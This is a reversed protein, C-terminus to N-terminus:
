ALFAIDVIVGQVDASTSTTAADKVTVTVVVTKASNAVQDEIQATGTIDITVESGLNLAAKIANNIEDATFDKSGDAGTLNIGIRKEVKAVANM